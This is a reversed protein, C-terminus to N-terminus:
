QTQHAPATSKKKAVPAFGGQRGAQDERGYEDADDRQRNDDLADIAVVDVAHASRRPERGRRRSGRCAFRYLGDLKRLRPDTGDAMPCCIATAHRPARQLVPGALRSRRYM